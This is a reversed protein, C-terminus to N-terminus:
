GKRGDDDEETDLVRKLGQFATEAVKLTGRKLKKVNEKVHEDNRITDVTDNLASVGRRVYANSRVEDMGDQVYGYVKDAAAVVKEKGAQVDERENFRQIKEQTSAILKQTEQKLREMRENVEMSDAHEKLWERAEQYLRQLQAAADDLIKKSQSAEDEETEMTIITFKAEKELAEMEKERENEM